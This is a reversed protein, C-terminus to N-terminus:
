LADSMENSSHRESSLEITLTAAPNTEKLAVERMLNIIPRRFPGPAAPSNDWQVRQFLGSRNVGTPVVDGVHGQILTQPLNGKDMNYWPRESPPNHNNHRRSNSECIHGDLLLSPLRM